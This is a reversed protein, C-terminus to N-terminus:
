RSGLWENAKKIASAVDAASMDNEIKKMESRAPEAHGAKDKAFGVTCCLMGLLLAVLFKKM